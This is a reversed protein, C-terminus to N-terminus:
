NSYVLSGNSHYLVTYVMEIFLHVEDTPLSPLDTETNGATTAPM